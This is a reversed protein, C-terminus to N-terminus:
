IQINGLEDVKNNTYKGIRDLFDNGFGSDCYDGIKRKRSNLLKPKINLGM